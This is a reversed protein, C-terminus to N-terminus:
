SNVFNCFSNWQREKSYLSTIKKQTRRAIEAHKPWNSLVREIQNILTASDTYTYFDVGPEFGDPYNGEESILFAGLGVAEFLRMNSKFDHNYDTYANVVIKSKGITKYLEGGFLPQMSYKRIIKGPSVVFPTTIKFHKSFNFVKYNLNYLMHCRIDLGSSVKYLLLDEVLNNRNQFFSEVCQGYFLVDISKEDFSMVKFNEPTAYQLEFAIFGENKWYDIYPRHPSLHIDYEASMRPTVEILDNWYVDVRNKSKGLLKIFNDKYFASLDFFVDPMYKEIQALRILDLSNTNLGNEKAWLKQLREYNWITFFVTDIKHQLAPQLISVSSYGDNIVIEHLTKFDMDDNVNYRKELMRIHPDYKHISQYVRM